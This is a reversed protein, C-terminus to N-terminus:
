AALRRGYRHHLGGVQPFDIVEGLEPPEFARPEPCDNELSQHTRSEHYYIV